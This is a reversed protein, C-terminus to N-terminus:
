EDWDDPRIDNLAMQAWSGLLRFAERRDGEQMEASFTLERQRNMGPNTLDTLDRLIAMALNYNGSAYANRAIELRRLQRAYFQHSAM